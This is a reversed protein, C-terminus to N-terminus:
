SILTVDGCGLWPGGIDQGGIAVHDGVHALVVNQASVVAIRGADIRTAYGSPWVVQRHIGQADFLGVGSQPNLELIGETRALPCATVSRTRLAVPDQSATCGLTAVTAVVLVAVRAVSPIADM